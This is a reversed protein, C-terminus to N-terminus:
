SAHETIYVIHGFTQSYHRVELIGVAMRCFRTCLRGLLTPLINYCCLLVLDPKWMGKSCIAHVYGDEAISGVSAHFLVRILPLIFADIITCYYVERVKIDVIWLQESIVLRSYDYGVVVASATNWSDVKLPIFPLEIAREQPHISEVILASSFIQLWIFHKCQFIM